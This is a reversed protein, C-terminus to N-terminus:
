SAKYYRLLNKISAEIFFFFADVM